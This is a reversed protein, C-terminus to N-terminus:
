RMKGIVRSWGDKKAAQWSEYSIVRGKKTKLTFVRDSKSREYSGIAEMIGSKTRKMWFVNAKIIKFHNGMTIM